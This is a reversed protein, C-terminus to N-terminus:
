FCRTGGHCCPMLLQRYANRGTRQDDLSVRHAQCLYEAVQEVIGRLVRRVASFDGQCALKCSVRYYDSHGVVADSYRRSPQLADELRERMVLALGRDTAAETGSQCDDM